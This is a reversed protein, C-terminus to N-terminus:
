MNLTLFLFVLALDSIHEFNVIVVVSRRRHRREPTTVTLKSYIECIQIYTEISLKSYNFSSMSRPVIM